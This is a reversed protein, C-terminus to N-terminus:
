AVLRLKQFINLPKFQSGYSALLVSNTHEALSADSADIHGTSQKSFAAFEPEALETKIGSAVSSQSGGEVGGGLAYDGEGM